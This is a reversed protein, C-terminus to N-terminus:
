EFQAKRGTKNCRGSQQMAKRRIRPTQSLRLIIKPRKVNLRVCPVKPKSKDGSASDGGGDNASSVSHETEPAATPSHLPESRKDKFSPAPSPPLKVGDATLGASDAAEPDHGEVDNDPAPSSPLNLWDSMFHDQDALEPSINDPGHASPRDVDEDVTSCLSTGRSFPPTEEPSLYLDIYAPTLSAKVIPLPEISNDSDIIIPLTLDAGRETIVFLAELPPPKCNTTYEEEVKQKKVQGINSDQRKHKQTRSPLSYGHCDSLHYNFSQKDKSDGECGLPCV